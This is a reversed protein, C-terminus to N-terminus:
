SLGSGRQRTRGTQSKGLSGRSSIVSRSKIVSQSDVVSKSTDVVSRSNVLSRGTDVVSRSNVVSLHKSFVCAKSNDILICDLFGLKTSSAVSAM